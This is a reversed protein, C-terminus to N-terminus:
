STASSSFTSSSFNPLCIKRTSSNISSRVPGFRLRSTCFHMHVGRQLNLTLISNIVHRIHCSKGDESFIRADRVCKAMGEYFEVQRPETLLSRTQQLSAWFGDLNTMTTGVNESLTVDIIEYHTGMTFMTFLTRERPVVSTMLITAGRAIIIYETMGEPMLAAQAMLCFASGLNADIDHAKTLERGLQDNM